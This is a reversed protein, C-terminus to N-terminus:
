ATWRHKSEALAEREHAEIWEKLAGAPVRMVGLLRVVPLGEDHVLNYATRTSVGLMEGVEAVSLFPRPSAQSM